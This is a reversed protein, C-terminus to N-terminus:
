PGSRNRLAFGLASQLSAAVRDAAVQQQLLALMPVVLTIDTDQRITRNSATNLIVNTIQGASLNQLVRTAGGTQGPVTATFVGPSAAVAVQPAGSAQGPATATVGAPSAAVAVQPAGSTQGPATATVGAPSATVDSSGVVQQIQVGRDTWTLRTALVLRGDILTRLSAAFGIELGSPTRLGGRQDALEDDTLLTEAASAAIPSWVSMLAGALVVFAALPKM